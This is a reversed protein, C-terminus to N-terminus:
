VTKSNIEYAKAKIYLADVNESIATSDFIVLAVMPNERIIKSHLSDKPSYWYFTYNKNYAYYLNAIWPIGNKTAVSITLYLNEQLITDVKEKLNM